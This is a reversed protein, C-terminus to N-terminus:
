RSRKFARFALRQQDADNPLIVLSPATKHSFDMLGKKPKVGSCKTCYCTNPLVELREAPITTSCILCTM